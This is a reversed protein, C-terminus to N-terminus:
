CNIQVTGDNLPGNCSRHDYDISPIPCGQSCTNTVCNDSCGQLYSTIFITCINGLTPPVGEIGVGRNKIEKLDLDFDDYNGM